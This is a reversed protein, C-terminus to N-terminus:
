GKRRGLRLNKRRGALIRESGRGSTVATATWDELLQLFPVDKPLSHTNPLAPLILLPPFFCLTHIHLLHITNQSDLFYVIRQCICCMTCKLIQLLLVQLLFSM